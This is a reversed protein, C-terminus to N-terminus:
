WPLLIECWKESGKPKGSAAVLSEHGGALDSQAESWCRRGAGVSTPQKSVLGSVYLERGTLLGSGELFPSRTARIQEVGREWAWRGVVVDM